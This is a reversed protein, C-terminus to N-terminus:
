QSQREGAFRPPQQGRWHRVPDQTLTARVDFYNVPGVLAPLFPVKIGLAQLNQTFYNDRIGGNLNPLLASRSVREPRPGPPRRQCTRRRRPQSGPRPRCGRESVAQRLVPTKPHQQHQGCLPGPGPRQQEPHQRQDDRGSRPDARHHGSGSRQQAFLPIAILFPLFRKM